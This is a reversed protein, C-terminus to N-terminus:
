EYILEKILEVPSMIKPGFATTIVCHKIMANTDEIGNNELVSNFKCLENCHCAYLNNSPTGNLIAIIGLFISKLEESRIIYDSFDQENETISELKYIKGFVEDTLLYAVYYKELLALSHNHILSSTPKELLDLICKFVDDQEYYYELWNNGSLKLWLDETCIRKFLLKLLACFDLSKLLDSLTKRDIRNDIITNIKNILQPSYYQSTSCLQSKKDIYDEIELISGCDLNRMISVQNNDKKICWYNSSKVDANLLGKREDGNPLEEGHYLRLDELILSAVEIADTLVFNKVGEWHKVLTEGGTYEQLLCVGFSTNYIDYKLPSLREEIKYVNGIKQRNWYTDIFAEFRKALAKREGDDLRERTILPAGQEDYRLIEEEEGWIVIRIPNFIKLVYGCLPGEGCLMYACSTSGYGKKIGTYTNSKLTPEKDRNKRGFVLDLIKETKEDNQLAKIRQWEEKFNDLGNTIGNYFEVEIQEQM